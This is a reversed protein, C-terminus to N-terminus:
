MRKYFVHWPVRWEGAGREIAEIIQDTVRQYHLM